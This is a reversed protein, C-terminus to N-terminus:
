KEETRDHVRHRKLEKWYLDVKGLLFRVMRDLRCCWGAAEHGSSAAGDVNLGFGWRTEYNVRQDRPLKRLDVTFDSTYRGELWVPLKRGFLQIIFLGVFWRKITERKDSIILTHIWLLIDVSKSSFKSFWRCYGTISPSVPVMEMSWPPSHPLLRNVARELFHWVALWLYIFTNNLGCICGVLSASWLICVTVLSIGWYSDCM